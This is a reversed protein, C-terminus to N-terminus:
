GFTYFRGDKEAFLIYYSSVILTENGEATKAMVSFTMYYLKDSEEKVTSKYDFGFYENLHDLFEDMAVEESEVEIPPEIKIRTIKFNEGGTVSLNDCQTQFSKDLGYQYEEQLKKEMTEAYSPFIYEMYLDFDGTEYSSFYKELADMLDAPYEAEDFYLKVGNESVRYPGLDYEESDEDPYVIEGTGAYEEVSIETEKSSSDKKKGCGAICGSCLVASLILATIRSKKM